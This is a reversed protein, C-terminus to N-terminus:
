VCFKCYKETSWDGECPHKKAVRDWQCMCCISYTLLGNGSHPSHLAIKSGCHVLCSYIVLYLFFHQIGLVQSYKGVTVVKNRAIFRSQSYKTIQSMTKGMTYLWTIHMSHNNVCMFVHEWIRCELPPSFRHNCSTQRRVMRCLCKFLKM